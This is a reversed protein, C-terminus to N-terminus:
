PTLSKPNIPNLALPKPNLSSSSLSQGQFHNLIETDLPPQLNRHKCYKTFRRVSLRKKQPTDNTKNFHKAPKPSKSVPKRLKSGPTQTWAQLNINKTLHHIFKGRKKPPPYSPEIILTPVETRPDRIRYIHHLAALGGRGGGGWPIIGRGGQPERHHPNGGQGEGSHGRDAEM